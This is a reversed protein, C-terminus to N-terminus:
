TGPLRLDRLLPRVAHGRRRQTATNYLAWVRRELLGMFSKWGGGRPDADRYSGCFRHWHAHPLLPPDPSVADRLRLQDPLGGCPASLHRELAADACGDRPAARAVSGARAGM